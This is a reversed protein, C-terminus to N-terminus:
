LRSQCAPQLTDSGGSGYVARRTNQIARGQFTQRTGVGFQGVAAGGAGTQSLGCATRSVRLRALLAQLMQAEPAPSDLRRTQAIHWLAGVCLQGRRRDQHAGGAWARFGQGLRTAPATSSGRGKHSLWRSLRQNYGLM